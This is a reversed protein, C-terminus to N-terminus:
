TTVRSARRRLRTVLPLEWRGAIIRHRVMGSLQDIVMTVVVVVIMLMGVVDWVRFQINDILMKGIGGAGILGLIASARVNIEFRYLWFALVDPMASPWVGWRMVQLRSAGAATASEVPGRDVSEFSEYGWKGLTGISGVAIALAGTYATLGTVSLMLVAIVVEPVARLVAFLARLPWRIVAPMLGRTALLSLPFSVIVGLVTGFWAMAVSLITAALADPLKSWAPPLFMLSLYHGLREPLTLLADWSIDVGWFAAVVIATVVVWVITRAVRLPRKPRVQPPRGARATAAGVADPTTTATM